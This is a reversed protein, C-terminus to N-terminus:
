TTVWFYWLVQSQSMETEGAVLLRVIVDMNLFVM